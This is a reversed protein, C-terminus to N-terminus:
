SSFMRPLLDAPSAKRNAALFEQSMHELARNTCYQQYPLTFFPAMMRTLLTGPASYTHINIRLVGDQLSFYFESIGMEAHGKLTGYSFGVKTASRFMDVVRVAFVAKLSLSLPPVFVQQLIIDGKKMARGEKHWETEAKMINQPFVKYEFLFDTNCATLDTVQPAPIVLSTVKERLVTHEDYSMALPKFVPFFRGLHKQPDFLFLKMTVSGPIPALVVCTSYLAWFMFIPQFILRLWYTWVSFAFHKGMTARIAIDINAVMLFGLMVAVCIGVLKRLKPVGAADYLAQPLVLGLAGILETVGSSYVLPIAQSALFGPIMPVYVTQTHVFHDIGSLIFGGAMGHRLAMRHDMHKTFLRQLLYALAAFLVMSYLRLFPSPIAPPAAHAAPDGSQAASNALAIFFAGLSTALIFAARHGKAAPGGAQRKPFLMKQMNRLM